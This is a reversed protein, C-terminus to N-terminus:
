AALARVSVTPTKVPRDTSPSHRKSEFRYSKYSPWGCLVKGVLHNGGSQVTLMPERERERERERVQKDLVLNMSMVVLRESVRSTEYVVNKKM